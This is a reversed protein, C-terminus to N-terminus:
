IHILSLKRAKPYRQYAKGARADDVDCLAVVNEGLRVMSGLNAAGRGGIGIFALDIKENAAAHARRNGTGLFLGTGVAAASKMMDRRNISHTM